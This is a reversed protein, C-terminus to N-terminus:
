TGSPDSQLLEMPHSDKPFNRIMDLIEPSLDRSNRMQTSFKLSEEPTPLEGHLLLYTTDEFSVKKALQQIPYGRYYLQGKEGDIKCIRSEGAIVGELGKAYSPTAEM